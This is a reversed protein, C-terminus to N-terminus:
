IHTQQLTDQLFSQLLHILEEGYVAAASKREVWCQMDLTNVDLYM